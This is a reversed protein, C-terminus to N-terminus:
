LLRSSNEYRYDNYNYEMKLYENWVFFNVATHKWAWVKFEIMFDAPM